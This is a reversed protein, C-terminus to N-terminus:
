NAALLFRDFLITYYEGLYAPAVKDAKFKNVREKADTYTTEYYDRVIEYREAYSLSYNVIYPADYEAKTSYQLYFLLGERLRAVERAYGEDLSACIKEYIASRFIGADVLKYKEKRKKEELADLLKNKRQQVNKVEEVQEASLVAFQEPTYEIIDILM